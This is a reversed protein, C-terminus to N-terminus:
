ILLPIINIFILGTFMIILGIICLPKIKEKFILASMLLTLILASGQALPYIQVASLRTAALTKFYSNCFLFTAMVVIYLLTQKDLTSKEKTQSNNVPEKRVNLCLFLIALTIASFVYIYFNFASAPTNAKNYQFIKYSFENFGNAIGVILLLLISLLNLKQKIQNSYLSMVVVSLLLLVLGIIEFYTITEKYIICSLVIPILIGMSVFTDVATFASKQVALLWTAIFISTAVGGFASILLVKKSVALSSIGGDFLVFVFGVPICFLMRILNALVAGKFGNTKNSVKKGFFGKIAGSAISASLFIYGLM